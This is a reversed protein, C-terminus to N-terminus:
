DESETGSATPYETYYSTEEESTRLRVAIEPHGLARHLSKAMTQMVDEVTMQRSLEQTVQNMLRARDAATISSITLQANQIAACFQDALTLLIEIDHPSFAEAETSQVDLAGLVQGAVQLPVAAESRTEPLLENALHLPDQTVDYAVRPQNNATVWGIISQGGVKLSHGRAKLAQGIEGSSEVLQANEGDEDILFISVHYYGFQSKILEVGRRLLDELSPSSIVVRAVQSAIRLQRTREAVREELSRYSETLEEAMMNLSRSLMGVEDSSEIPVRYDWDGGTMRQSFESLSRLPRLLRNSANSVVLLIFLAALFIFLISYPAFSRIESLYVSRPLELAIGLGAEPVWAYSGLVSEGNINQYERTRPTSVNPNDLAPYNVNVRRVTIAGSPDIELVVNPQVLIYASLGESNEDTSSFWKRKMDEIISAKFTNTSLGILIAENIGSEGTPIQAQTLIAFDEAESIKFLPHEYIVYTNNDGLVLNRMLDAEINEGEWENKTSALIKGDSTRVVLYEDFPVITSEPLVDLINSLADQLVVFEAEGEHTEIVRAASIRIVSVQTDSTLQEERDSVWDSIDILNDSIRGTLEDNLQTQMINRAQVYAAAAMAIMPILVLPVLVFTLKRSLSSQQEFTTFRPGLFDLLRQLM